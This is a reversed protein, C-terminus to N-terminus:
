GPAHLTEYELINLKQATIQSVYPRANDHLIQGKRKILIPCLQQPKQHVQRNGLLVERTRSNEGEFFFRLDEANEILSRECRFFPSAITFSHGKFMIAATIEPRKIKRVTEVLKFTMKTKYDEDYKQKGKLVKALVDM